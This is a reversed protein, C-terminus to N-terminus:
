SSQAQAFDVFLDVVKEQPVSQIKPQPSNLWFRGSQLTFEILSQDKELAKLVNLAENKLREAAQPFKCEMSSQKEECLRKYLPMMTKNAPIDEMKFSDFAGLKFGGMPLHGAELALRDLEAVGVGSEVGIHGFVEAQIIIASPKIYGQQVERRIAYLMLALQEEATTPLSLAAARILLSQYKEILYIWGDANIYDEDSIGMRQMVYQKEDALYEPPVGGVLSVFYEVFYAYSQWSSRGNGTALILEPIVDPSSGLFRCGDLPSLIESFRLRYLPLPEKAGVKMMSRLFKFGSILQDELGLPEEKQTFFEVPIIFGPVIPLSQLGLQYLQTGLFGFSNRSAQCLPSVQPHGFPYLWRITM